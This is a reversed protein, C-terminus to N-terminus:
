RTCENEHPGSVREVAHGRVREGIPAYRIKESKGNREVGLAVEVEPRGARYQAFRVADDPRLGARAAPGKPDLGVPRQDASKSTADPDFGLAFLPYERTVIRFCPGLPVGDLAPAEGRAIFRQWEEAAATGIKEGALAVLQDARMEIDKRGQLQAAIAVLSSSRARLKADLRTGFLAGRAAVLAFGNGAALEKLLAAHDLGRWRSTAAAAFLRTLEDALEFSSLTGFRFAMSTALARAVGESFWARELRAAGEGLWSRGSIWRQVLATATAIRADSGFPDAVGVHVLAGHSRETVVVDGRDRGDIVLLLEIPTPDRGLQTGVASRFAAFDAAVIRPDFAADGLWSLGDRDVGTDFSARGIAGALFTAGRLQRGAAAFSAERGFGFSSAATKGRVDGPDITLEVDALQEDWASPLALVREGSVRMRTPDVASALPRAADVDAAARVRYSVTLPSTAPRGLRIVPPEGSVSGSTLNMNTLEGASDRGSLGDIPEGVAGFALADLEGSPWEFRLTVAVHAPDATGRASLSAHLFPRTRQADTAPKAAGHDAAHAVAPTAPGPGSPCPACAAAVALAGCSAVYWFRM